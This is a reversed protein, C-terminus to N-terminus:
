SRNATAQCRGRHLWMSGCPEGTVENAKALTRYKRRGMAAPHEFARDRETASTKFLVRVSGGLQVSAAAETRPSPPACIPVNQARRGLRTSLNRGGSTSFACLSARDAWLTAAYVAALHQAEGAVLPQFVLSGDAQSSRPGALAAWQTRRRLRQRRVTTLSDCLHYANRGRRM